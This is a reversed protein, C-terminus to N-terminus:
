AVEVISDEVTRDDVENLDVDEAIMPGVEVYGVTGDDYAGAKQEEIGEEGPFGLLGGGGYFAM